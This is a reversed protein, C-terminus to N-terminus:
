SASVTKWIMAGTRGRKRGIKIQGTVDVAVMIKYINGDPGELQAHIMDGFKFPYDTASPNHDKDFHFLSIGKLNIDEINGSTHNYVRQGAVGASLEALSNFGFNDIRQWPSWEKTGDKVREFIENSNVNTAVQKIWSTSKYVVIQFYTSATNPYNAETLRDGKTYYCSYIGNTTLNNLDKEIYYSKDGIPNGLVGAVVSLFLGRHGKSTDPNIKQHM